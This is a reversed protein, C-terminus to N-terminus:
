GKFGEEDGDARRVVLTVPRTVFSPLSGRIISDVQLKVFAAM